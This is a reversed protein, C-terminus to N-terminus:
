ASKLDRLYNILIHINTSPNFNQSREAAKFIRESNSLAGDLTNLDISQVYIGKQTKKYEPLFVKLDDIVQDGVSKNPLTRYPKTTPNFHLLLWYEFSPDSKIAVFEVEEDLEMKAIQENKAIDSNIKDVEEVADDFTTHTDRDFVCFVKNYVENKALDKDFLKKAHNVVSIPSSGCKGDVTVNASDLEEHIRLEEFYIPETKSGECVILVKDYPKRNAKRRASEESLRAKRKRFLDDSGM